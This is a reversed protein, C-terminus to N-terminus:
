NSIIENIITEIGYSYKWSPYRNSFKRTDSIWWIHDGIRNEPSIEKLIKEGTKEEILNIAELVSCNSHRGGGVNYVQGSRPDKHFNWFMNVLDFSHLNDRVQKGKYGYITYPRGTKACKVLYALFGHLKAGSHAPGTLCGARFIGTKLGFYNGYEQAMIDAAVKSAGFVSHLTRDISMSEDIGHEAYPNDEALEWRTAHEVLPLHNPSDGYVKNTSLFIFTAKPCHDRTLELLNVTGTANISFDTLPETAAWDHSPQAAAHIILSIDSAYKEFIPKLEDNDRIDIHKPIFNEYDKELNKLNWLTSGDKGFFYERLNNDIGIIHDFKDAFFRVSESGVLGNSGTIVAVSM